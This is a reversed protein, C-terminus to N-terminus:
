SLSCLKSKLSLMGKFAGNYYFYSTTYLWLNHYLLSIITSSTEYISTCEDCWHFIYTVPLYLYRMPVGIHSLTNDEFSVPTWTSLELMSAGSHIIGNTIHAQFVAPNHYIHQTYEISAVRLQFPLPLTILLLRSAIM